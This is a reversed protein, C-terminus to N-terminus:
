KNKPNFDLIQVGKEGPIAIQGPASNLQKQLSSLPKSATFRGLERGRSSCLFWQDSYAYRYLFRNGLVPFIDAPGKSRDLAIAQNFFLLENGEKDYLIQSPNDSSYSYKDKTFESGFHICVKDQFLQMCTVANRGEMRSYGPTITSLPAGTAYDWIRIEGYYSYSSIVHANGKLDLTAPAKRFNLPNYTSVPMAFREKPKGCLPQECVTKDDLFFISRTEKSFYPLQLPGFTHKAVEKGIFDLVFVEKEGFGYRNEFLVIQSTDEYIAEVETDRSLLDFTRLLSGDKRSFVAFSRRTNEDFVLFLEAKTLHALAIQIRHTIFKYGINVQDLDVKCVFNGSLDFANWYRTDEAVALFCNSVVHEHASSYGGMHDTGYSLEKTSFAVNAINSQFQLFEAKTTCTAPAGLQPLVSRWVRDTSLNTNLTKCSTCASLIDKPELFSAAYAHLIAPLRELKTRSDKQPPPLLGLGNVTSADLNAKTTM